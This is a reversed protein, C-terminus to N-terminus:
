LVYNRCSKSRFGSSIDRSIGDPNGKFDTLSESLNEKSIRYANGEYDPFSKLPIREFNSLIEKLSRVPNRRRRSDKSFM